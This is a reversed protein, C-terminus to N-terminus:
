QQLMITLCLTMLLQMKSRQLILIIFLCKKTMLPYLVKSFLQLRIMKKKFKPCLLKKVKLKLFGNRKYNREKNLLVKLITLTFWTSKTFSKRTINEAFRANHIGNKMQSHVFNEGGLLSLTNLTKSKKLETMISKAKVNKQKFLVHMGILM